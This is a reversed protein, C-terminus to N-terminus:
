WDLNRHGRRKVIADLLTKKWCPVNQRVNNAELLLTIRPTAPMHLGTSFIFDEQSAADSMKNLRLSAMPAADNVICRRGQLCGNVMGIALM